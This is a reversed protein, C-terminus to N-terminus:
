TWSTLLRTSFILILSPIIHISLILYHIPLIHFYNISPNTPGHHLSTYLIISYCVTFFSTILIIAAAPLSYAAAATILIIERLLNIFPPAAINAAILLFWILTIAPNILILGTNILLRRSKSNEYYINVAAFLGSSTLGHSIIIALRGEWGWKNITCIGIIVLAIHSVSSYAIISKIDTQRICIIATLLAGTLSIPIVFHRLPEIIFPFSIIIRIIGYGGLKLLVSALIISGAVPAEVHAKPLWLHVTYIPIKVLFGILLPFGYLGTMFTSYFYGDSDETDVISWIHSNNYIFILTALLPLSATITYLILYISAHLREPQAGWKIIIIFTPILSAEFIIYFIWLSNTSFALILIITLTLVISSFITEEKNHYYIKLRAIFILNTIWLTLIILLVRILDLRFYISLPIPTAIPRFIKTRIYLTLIPLCLPLHSWTKNTILNPIPILLQLMSYYKLPNTTNHNPILTYYIYIYIYINVLSPM